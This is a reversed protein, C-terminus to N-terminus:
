DSLFINSGVITITSKEIEEKLETLKAENYFKSDTILHVYMCFQRQLSSVGKDNQFKM